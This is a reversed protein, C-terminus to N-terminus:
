KVGVPPLAGAPPDLGDGVGAVVVYGKGGGGLPGDGVWIPPPKVAAVQPGVVVHWIGNGGARIM